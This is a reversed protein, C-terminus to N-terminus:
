MGQFWWEFDVGECLFAAHALRQQWHANCHCYDLAAAAPSWPLAEIM